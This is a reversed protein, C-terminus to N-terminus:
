KDKLYDLVPKAKKLIVEMAQTVEEPSVYEFDVKHVSVEPVFYGIVKNRNMIAIPSNGASEIVKMPDRLDTLSATKTALIKQM